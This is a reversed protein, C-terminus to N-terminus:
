NASIYIFLKTHPVDTASSVSGSIVNPTVTGNFDQALINQSSVDTKTMVSYTNGDNRNQAAPNAGAQSDRHRHQEMEAVQYAGIGSGVPYTGSLATRQQFEPDYFKHSSYARLAVDNLDPLHIDTDTSGYSGSAWVASLLPYDERSVARGDCLLWVVSDHGQYDLGRFVSKYGLYGAAM